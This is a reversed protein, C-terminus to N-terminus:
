ADLVAGCYWMSAVGGYMVTCVHLLMNSPEVPQWVQSLPKWSASNMSELGCRTAPAHRARKAHTIHAQASGQHTHM